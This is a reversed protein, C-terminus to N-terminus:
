FQLSTLESTVKCLECFIETLLCDKGTDTIRLAIRPLLIQKNHYTLFHCWRVSLNAENLLNYTTTEIKRLFYVVFTSIRVDFIHRM